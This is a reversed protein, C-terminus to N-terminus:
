SKWPLLLYRATLCRSTINRPPSPRSCCRGCPAQFHVPGGAKKQIPIGPCFLDQDPWTVPGTITEVYRAFCDAAQELEGVRLHYEMMPADSMDPLGFTRAM